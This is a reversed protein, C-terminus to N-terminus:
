SAKDEDEDREDDGAEAFGEAEFGFLETDPDAWAGEPLGAKRCVAELFARPSKMHYLAPVQPLLLGSRGSRRVLLGHRGLRVDNPDIPGMATLASVHLKVEPLEDATVPPFRSDDTAAAVAMAAVSEALPRSAQTEGRCGRLAATDRRRITVFSARPEALAPRESLLSGPVAITEGRILFSELSVRALGLLAARDDEDLRTM